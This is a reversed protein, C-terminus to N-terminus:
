IHKNFYKVYFTKVRHCKLNKNNSLHSKECKLFRKLIFFTLIEFTCKANLVLFFLLTYSDGHAVCREIEITDHDM